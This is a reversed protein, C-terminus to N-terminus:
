IYSYRVTMYLNKLGLGLGTASLTSAAYAYIADGSFESLYLTSGYAVIDAGFYGDNTIYANQLTVTDCYVMSEPGFTHSGTVLVLNANSSVNYLGNNTTENELLLTGIYKLIQTSIIFIVARYM